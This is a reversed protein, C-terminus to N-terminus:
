GGEGGTVHHPGAPAEGEGPEGHASPGPRQARRHRRRARRRARRARRQVRGWELVALAWVAAILTQAGAAIAWWRGQAACAADHAAAVQPDASTPLGGAGAVAAVVAPPCALEQSEIAVGPVFLVYVGHLAVLALVGALLKQWWSARRVLTALRTSGQSRRRRSM